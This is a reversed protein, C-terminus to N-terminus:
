RREGDFMLSMQKVFTEEHMKSPTIPDGEADKWVWRPLLYPLYLMLTLLCLQRGM